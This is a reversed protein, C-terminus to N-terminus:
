VGGRELECDERSWLQRQQAAAIAEEILEDEDPTLRVDANLKVTEGQRCLKTAITPSHYVDEGSVDSHAVVHLTWGRWRRVVELEVLDAGEGPTFTITRSDHDAERDRGGVLVLLATAVDLDDPEVTGLLDAIRRASDIRANARRRQEHASM